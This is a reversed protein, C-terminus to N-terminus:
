STILRPTRTILVENGVKAEAFLRKAFEMPVGLCGHTAAGRQVVSGHIAVGDGTLRLTYPMPADYLSSFHDKRMQLVTFRGVPTPKEEAGYLLVTTGIEHQGRFVSMTQATLDVFVWIPADPVGSDNWVYEGYTIRGPLNLLSKIERPGGPAGAVDLLKGQPFRIREGSQDLVEVPMPAAAPRQCATSAAIGFTAAFALLAPAISSRIM